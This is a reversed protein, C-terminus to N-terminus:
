LPSRTTLNRIFRALRRAIPFRYPGFVAPQPTWRPAPMEALAVADTLTDVRQGGETAILPSRRWAIHLDLDIETLKTAM